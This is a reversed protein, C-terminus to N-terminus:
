LVEELCEEANTINDVAEDLSDIYEEMQEGKLSDPINEYADYEEDRIEEIVGKLVAIEQLVDRIKKRREKNM